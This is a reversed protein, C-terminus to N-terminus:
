APPWTDALIRDKLIDILQLVESRELNVALDIVIEVDKTPSSSADVVDKFANDGRDIGYYRDAM